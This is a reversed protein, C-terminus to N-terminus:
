AGLLTKGLLLLSSGILSARGIVRTRRDVSSMSLECAYFLIGIRVIVGNMGAIGLRQDVLFAAAVMVFALLFDLPTTRFEHEAAFRLALAVAVALVGFYVKDVVGYLTGSLAGNVQLLYVVSAAASFYALRLLISGGISDRLIVSVLVLGLVIAASFDFGSPITTAAISAVILYAPVSFKVFDLPLRLMWQYRSDGASGTEAGFNARWGSREAWVLFAFVAGCVLAYIAVVFADSEYAFLVASLVLIAQVSYIIVVVQHHTFGIDLLRHHVHNRTARFWNMGGLMRQGFVALIDVIPLGILLAPAAMSLDTNVQQTLLVVLVGLSYGIFQSGADGMFVRAPHTNFRLFGFVGGAVALAFLVVLAGGTDRALYAMAGLSLMSEGGALGDLGDSHNMANIVGVLAIVTFPKGLAPDIPGAIFPLHSVWVNGWYVVAITAIFQGVFKVYHGLEMSDDAAGFAVLVVSGFLYGSLWSQPELWLLIAGLTGLVIGIGGVRPIAVAHVKRPDPLDVMGLRPALRIMLPIVLMSIALATFIVLLASMFREAAGALV